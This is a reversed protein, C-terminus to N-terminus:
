KVWSLIKTTEGQLWFTNIKMLFHWKKTQHQIKHQLDVWTRRSPTLPSFAWPGAIRLPGLPVRLFSIQYLILINRVSHGQFFGIHYRQPCSCSPSLFHNIGTVFNQCAFFRADSSKSSIRSFIISINYIIFTECVKEWLVLSPDKPVRSLEAWPPAQTSKDM